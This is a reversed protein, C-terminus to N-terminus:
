KCYNNSLINPDRLTGLTYVKISGEQEAKCAYNLAWLGRHFLISTKIKFTISYLM